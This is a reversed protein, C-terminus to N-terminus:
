SLVVRLQRSSDRHNSVKKNTYISMMEKLIFGLSFVEDEQEGGNLLLYIKNEREKEEEEEGYTMQIKM